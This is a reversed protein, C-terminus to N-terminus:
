GTTITLWSDDRSLYSNIVAAPAIALRNGMREPVSGTQDYTIVQWEILRYLSEFLALDIWEGAFEPDQDRRYLASMIAFAGMLGTVSDGHSFGAHLPPGDPWGTLAVVGSMAEGVKGFGPRNRRSTNSGFGSIQLMILQPNERQLSTWDLGWQEVTE